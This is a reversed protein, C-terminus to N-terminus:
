SRNSKELPGGCNPCVFGFGGACNDCFTCQFSCSYGDAASRLDAACKECRDKATTMTRLLQGNDEERESAKLL